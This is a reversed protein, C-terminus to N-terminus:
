STWSSPSTIPVKGIRKSIAGPANRIIAGTFYRWQCLRECINGTLHSIHSVWEGGGGSAAADPHRLSLVLPFLSSSLPHADKTEEAGSCRPTAGAHRRRAASTCRALPLIFGIKEETSLM